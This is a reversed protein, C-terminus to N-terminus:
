LSPGQCVIRESSIHRRDSISEQEKIIFDQNRVYRRRTGGLRLVRGKLYEGRTPAIRTTLISTGAMGHRGLFTVTSCCTVM